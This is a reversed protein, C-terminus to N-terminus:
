CGLITLLHSIQTFEANEPIVLTTCQVKTIVNATNSGIIIKKLGSAGKTGMVIVDINKEEVHKRISEIFFNHDYLTYFRQTNSPSLEVSIRKVLKHLQLKIPKIMVDEIVNQTAIFPSDNVITTRLRNVHLLYFNCPEEEFFKVAYALANWSNESFDTPLLINKM